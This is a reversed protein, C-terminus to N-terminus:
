EDITELIRELPVVYMMPRPLLTIRNGPCNLDAFFGKPSKIPSKFWKLPLQIAM